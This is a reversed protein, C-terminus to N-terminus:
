RGGRNAKAKEKAAKAAAKDMAKQGPRPDKSAGRPIRGTILLYYPFDCAKMAHAKALSRKTVPDTRDFPKLVKAHVWAQALLPALLLTAEDPLLGKSLIAFCEGRQEPAAYRLPTAGRPPGAGFAYPGQANFKLGGSRLDGPLQGEAIPSVEDSEFEDESAKSDRRSGSSSRPTLVMATSAGLSGPIGPVNSRVAAAGKVNSPGKLAAKIARSLNQLSPPALPSIPPDMQSPTDLDRNLSLARAVAAPSATPAGRGGRGDGGRAWLPGAPRSSVGSSGGSGVSRSSDRSGNKGGMDGVGSSSSDRSGNKGSINDDDDDNVPYGGPLAEVFPDAGAALLQAIAGHDLSRCAYHLPTRGLADRANPDAGRELLAAVLRAQRFHPWTHCAAHLPTRGRRDLAEHMRRQHHPQPSHQQKLPQPPQQQPSPPEADAGSPDDATGSEAESPSPTMAAEAPAAAESVSDAASGEAAAAAAAKAPSWRLRGDEAELLAVAVNGHGLFSALHLMSLGGQERLAYTRSMLPRGKLAWEPDQDFGLFGFRGRLEALLAGGGMTKVPLRETSSFSLDPTTFVNAATPASTPPAAAPAHAVTASYAARTSAAVAAFARSAARPALDGGARKSAAAAALARWPQAKLCASEAAAAEAARHAYFAQRHRLAAERRKRVSHVPPEVEEEKEDDENDSNTSDLSGFSGALSGRDLSGISSVSAASSFHAKANRHTLLPSVLPSTTSFPAFAVNADGFGPTAEAGYDAGAVSERVVPQSRIPQDLTPNEVSAAAESADTNRRGDVDSNLSGVSDDNLSGNDDVDDGNLDENQSIADGSPWLPIPLPPPRPVPDPYYARVKFLPLFFFFFSVCALAPVFM